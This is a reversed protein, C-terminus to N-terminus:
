TNLVTKKEKGKLTRWRDQIQKSSRKLGYKHLISRCLELPPSFENCLPYEKLLCEDEETCFQRKENLHKITEHIECAENESPFQYFRRSTAESHSMHTALLRMNGEDLNKRGESAIVKRHLSPPPTSIDFIRAVKQIAESVKRFENGTYSLFLNDSLEVTKPTIFKRIYQLYDNIMKEVNPTIVISAPGRSACTKHNLVQIVVKEDIHEREEYENIMMHQVVGPRQANPFIMSAAIYTIILLYEQSNIMADKAIEFAKEVAVLVEKSELFGSPNNARRVKM